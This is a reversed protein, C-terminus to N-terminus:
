VREWEALRKSAMMSQESGGKVEGLVQGGATRRIGAKVECRGRQRM